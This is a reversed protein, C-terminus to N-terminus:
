KIDIKYIKGGSLILIKKNTEDVDIDTAKKIISAAYSKIFKGEKDLVVIRSNGNDIIYLNDFDENTVIKTPSSMEKDIGSITFDDKNGKTYKNITGDNFLVYISGDIGMAVAKSLDQDSEKLYDSEAYTDESPVFKSIGAAKDLIYLNSGFVGIGGDTEWSKKFLTKKTENGKDISTAGKADLLYIFDENQTAYAVDPNDIEYSLLKSESKDVETASVGTENGEGKLETNVKGLLSEIQDDEDSGNKFTDKDKELITKAEKFSEQALSSNLDKLNLGEDYKEKASNFIEAFAEKNSSSNKSNLALLSSIGIVLIL